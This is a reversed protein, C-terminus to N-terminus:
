TLKSLNSSEESDAAEDKPHSNKAYFPYIDLEWYGIYYLAFTFCIADIIALLTM